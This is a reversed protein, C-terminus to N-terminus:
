KANPAELIGEYVRLGIVSQAEKKKLAAFEEFYIPKGISVHLKGFLKPWKRNRPWLRHMGEIRIPIIPAKTRMMLFSAGTQLPQLKGDASRAGEPFILVKKGDKVLNSITRMVNLNHKPDVPHSNLRKIFRGFLGKFLSTRALFQIEEPCSIAVVPPDFFSVHNAAIIAGGDVFNERGQVKLRYFIKFFCWTSFIVVRYCFRM